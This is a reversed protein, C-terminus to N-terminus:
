RRLPLRNTSGCKYTSSQIFSSQMAELLDKILKLNYEIANIDKYSLMKDPITSAGEPVYFGDLISNINNRIRKVDEDNPIDNSKWEKSICGITYQYQTLLNSLYSINDEIRNLDSINLCGKLDYVVGLELVLVENEVSVAGDGQLVVLDGDIYAMDGVNLSLSDNVVKVDAIHTHSKKWAEIQQIAFAVDYSTRDFIPKRWVNAM